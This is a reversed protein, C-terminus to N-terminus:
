EASGRRYREIRRYDTVDTTLPTISVFNHDYADFDSGQEGKIHDLISGGLNFYYSGDALTTRKYNDRYLRRGLQTWKIGNIRKGVPPHNINLLTPEDFIFPNDDIFNKVFGAVAAFDGDEEIYGCSVALATRGHIFAHYAAGVTGSYLVDQGMNVGKNIGSVVLDFEVDFIDGHLAINVCDVPFGEVMWHHKDFEQVYVNDYISLAQSTGSKETMPAAIFVEGLESLADRLALVGPYDYGDDNTLLINMYLCCWSGLLCFLKKRLM